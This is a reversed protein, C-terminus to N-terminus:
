DTRGRASHEPAHRCLQRSDASSARAYNQLASCVSQELEGHVFPLTLVDFGGLNLVEAWFRQSPVKSAVILLPAEEEELLGRWDQSGRMDADWLVLDPNSKRIEVRATDSDSVCVVSQGAQHAVDRLVCLDAESKSVFLIV